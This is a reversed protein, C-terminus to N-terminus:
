FPANTDPLPVSPRDGTDPTRDAGLRDQAGGPERPDSFTLQYPRFTLAVSGTAGKNKAVNIEYDEMSPEPV